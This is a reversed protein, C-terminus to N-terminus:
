FINALPNKKKQMTESNHYFMKSDMEFNELKTKYFQSTKLM